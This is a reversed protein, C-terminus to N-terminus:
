SQYALEIITAVKLGLVVFVICIIESHVDWEIFEDNYCWWGRM